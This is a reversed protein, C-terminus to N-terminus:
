KVQVKIQKPKVEEAKPVRLTLVGNDYTAEIADANVPVNFTVRREFSGHYLERKFFDVGEPQPEFKGRITLEEGEFTIEVNEPNVGPVYATLVFADQAGYADIPLRLTRSAPAGEGDHGGNRAYDYPAATSMRRNVADAMEVFDRVMQNYPNTRM